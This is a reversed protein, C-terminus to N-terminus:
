ASAVVCPLPQWMQTVGARAALCCGRDPGGHQAPQGASCLLHQVLTREVLHRAAGWIPSFHCWFGAVGQLM